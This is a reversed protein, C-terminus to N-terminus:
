DEAHDKEYQEAEWGEFFDGWSTLLFENNETDYVLTMDYTEGTNVYLAIINGYFHNIWVGEGTLSVVGHNNTLANVIELVDDTSFDSSDIMRDVIDAAEETLKLHKVLSYKSVETM